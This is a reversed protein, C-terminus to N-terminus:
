IQIRHKFINELFDIDYVELDTNFIGNIANNVFHDNFIFDDAKFLSLIEVPKLGHVRSCLYFLCYQGCTTSMYSQLRLNNYIYHKRKSVFRLLTDYYPIEGTSDFYEIYDKRRPIYVAIWHTGYGARKDLNIIYASSHKNSRLRRPLTDRAYVGRFIKKLPACKNVIELIKKSNM